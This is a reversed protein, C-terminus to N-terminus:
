SLRCCKNLEKTRKLHLTANECLIISKERLIEIDEGRELTKEIAVLTLAIVEANTQHIKNILIDKGTYGFPNQIVDDLTAKVSLPKLFIHKVNRFLYFLESKELRKKSCVAILINEQAHAEIYHFEDNVKTHLISSSNLKDTIKPLTNMELNELDNCAWLGNYRQSFRIPKANILNSANNQEYKYIAIAILM